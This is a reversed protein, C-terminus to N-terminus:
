SSESRGGDMDKEGKCRLKGDVEDDEDDVLVVVM